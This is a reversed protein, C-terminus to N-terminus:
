GEEESQVAPLFPNIRCDGLDMGSARVPQLKVRQGREKEEERKGSKEEM